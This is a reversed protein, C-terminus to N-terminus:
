ACRQNRSAPVVRVVPELLLFLLGRKYGITLRSRVLQWVKRDQVEAAGCTAALPVRSTSAICDECHQVTALISAFDTAGELLSTGNWIGSHIHVM